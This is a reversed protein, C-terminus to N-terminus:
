TLISAFLAWPCLVLKNADLLFPENSIQKGIIKKTELPKDRSHSREYLAPTKRNNPTTNKSTDQANSKITEMRGM